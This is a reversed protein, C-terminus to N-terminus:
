HPVVCTGIPQECPLRTIDWISKPSGNQRRTITFRENVNVGAAEIQNAVELDLFM